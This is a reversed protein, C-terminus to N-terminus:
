EPKIGKKAIQSGTKIKKQTNARHSTLLGNIKPFRTYQLERVYHYMVITLNSM